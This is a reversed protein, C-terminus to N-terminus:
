FMQLSHKRIIFQNKVKDNELDIMKQTLAVETNDIQKLWQVPLIPVLSPLRPILAKESAFIDKIKMWIYSLM